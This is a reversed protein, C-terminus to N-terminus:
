PLFELFRHIWRANCSSRDAKASLRGILVQGFVVGHKRSAFDYGSADALSVVSQAEGESVSRAALTDNPERSLVVSSNKSLHGIYARETTSDAM